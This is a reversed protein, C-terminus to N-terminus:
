YEICNYNMLQDHILIKSSVAPQPTDITKQREESIVSAPTSTQKESQQRKLPPPSIVSTAITNIPPDSLPPPLSTLDVTAGGEVEKILPEM